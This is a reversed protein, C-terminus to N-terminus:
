VGYYLSVSHSVAALLVCLLAAVAISCGCVQM